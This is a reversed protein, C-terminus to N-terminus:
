RTPIEKFGAKGHNTFTSGPGTLFYHTNGGDTFRYMKCGDQQFLFEIDYGNKNVTEAAPGNCGAVGALLALWLWLTKV